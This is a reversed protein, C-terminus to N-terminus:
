LHVVCLGGFSVEIGHWSSEAKADIKQYARKDLWYSLYIYSQFIFNSKFDFVM